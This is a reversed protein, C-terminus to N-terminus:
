GGNIIKAIIKRNKIFRRATQTFCQLMRYAAVAVSTARMFRYSVFERVSCVWFNGDRRRFILSERWRFLQIQTGCFVICETPRSSKNETCLVSVRVRGLEVLKIGRSFPDYLVLASVRQCYFTYFNIYNESPISLRQFNNCVHRIEDREARTRAFVSSFNYKVKLRSRSKRAARAHRIRPIYNCFTRSLICKCRRAWRRPSRISSLFCFVFFFSSFTSLLSLIIHKIM